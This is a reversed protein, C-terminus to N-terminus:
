LLYPTENWSPNGGTSAHSFDGGVLTAVYFAYLASYSFKSLCRIMKWSLYPGLVVHCMHKFVIRKDSTLVHHGIYRYKYVHIQM